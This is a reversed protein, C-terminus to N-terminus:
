ENVPNLSLWHTANDPVHVTSFGITRYFQDAVPNDTRLTLTAYFRKAELIVNSVLQSGVGYKRFEPHVYLRRVRGMYSIQSYPDQNLGCIEVIQDMLHAVFLAEGDRDFRNEGSVYDDYLRRVFRFGEKESELVLDHIDDVNIDKVETVLFDALNVGERENWISGNNLEEARNCLIGFAYAM